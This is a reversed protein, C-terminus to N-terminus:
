HGSRIQEYRFWVHWAAHVSATLSSASRSRDFQAQMWAIPALEGALNRVRQADLTAAAAADAVSADQVRGYAVLLSQNASRLSQAASRVVDELRREASALAARADDIANPSSGQHDVGQLRITALTLAREAAAIGVHLSALAELDRALEPVAPLEDPVDELGRDRLADVNLGVVAALDIWALEDATVADRAARSAAEADSRAEELALGTIVGAEFRVQAAALQAAAIEARMVAERMADGRELVNAYAEFAEREAAREAAALAAESSALTNELQLRELPAVLPDHQARDMDRRAAAVEATRSAVDSAVCSALSWASELDLPADSAVAAAMPAFVLVVMVRAVLSLM